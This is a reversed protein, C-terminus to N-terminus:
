LRSFSTSRISMPASSSSGSMVVFCVRFGIINSFSSCSSSLWVLANSGNYRSLRVLVLLALILLLPLLPVLWVDDDDVDDEALIIDDDALLFSWSRTIEGSVGLLNMQIWNGSLLSDVITSSFDVGDLETLTFVFAIDGCGVFAGCGCPITRLRNWENRSSSLSRLWVKLLGLWSSILSSADFVFIALLLDSLIVVRDFKSREFSECIM